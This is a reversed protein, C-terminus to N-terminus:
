VAINFTKQTRGQTGVIQVDFKVQNAAGTPIQIFGIFRWDDKTPYLNEPSATTFRYLKQNLNQTSQVLTLPLGLTGPSFSVPSSTPVYITITAFAVDGIADGANRVKIKRLRGTENTDPEEVYIQVDAKKVSYGIAILALAVALLTGMTAAFNLILSFHQNDLNTKDSVAFIVSTIILIVIIWIGYGIFTKSTKNM